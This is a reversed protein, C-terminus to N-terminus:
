QRTTDDLDLSVESFAIGSGVCSGAQSRAVGDHKARRTKGIDVEDITDVITEIDRALALAEGSGHEETREFWELADLLHRPSSVDHQAARVIKRSKGTARAPQCFGEADGAGPSHIPSSPKRTLFMRIVGRMPM